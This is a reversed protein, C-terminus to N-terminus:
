RSTSRDKSTLQFLSPLVAAMVETVGAGVPPVRAVKEAGEVRAVTEAAERRVSVVQAPAATVGKRGAAGSEAMEAQAAPAVKDAMRPSFLSDELQPLTIFRTPRMAVPIVREDLEELQDPVVREERSGKYATLELGQATETTERFPRTRHRPHDPRVRRAKMAKREPLVVRTKRSFSMYALLGPM